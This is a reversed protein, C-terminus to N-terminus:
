DDWSPEYHYETQGGGSVKELEEDTLKEIEKDQIQKDKQNDKDKFQEKQNNKDM